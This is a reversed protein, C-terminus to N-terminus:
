PNRERATCLMKIRVVYENNKWSLAIAKKPFFNQGASVEFRVAGRRWSAGGLLCLFLGLGSGPPDAAQGYPYLEVHFIMGPVLGFKDSSVKDGATTCTELLKTVNLTWTASFSGLLLSTTCNNDSRIREESALVEATTAQFDSKTATTAMLSETTTKVSELQPLMSNILDVNTLMLDLNAKELDSVKVLLGGNQKKLEKNQKELISAHVVASQERHKEM